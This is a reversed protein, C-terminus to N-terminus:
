MCDECLWECSLRTAKFFKFHETIIGDTHDADHSSNISFTYQQSFFFFSDASCFTNIAIPLEVITNIQYNKDKLGILIAFIFSSGWFCLSM